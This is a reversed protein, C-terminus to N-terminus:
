LIYPTRFPDLDPGFPRREGQNLKTSGKMLAFTADKAFLICYQNKFEEMAGRKAAEKTFDFAMEAPKRKFWENIGMAFWDEMITKGTERGGSSIASFSTDRAFNKLGLKTSEYWAEEVASPIVGKAIDKAVLQGVKKTAEKSAFEAAAKVTKIAADKGGEITGMAIQKALDQGVKKTAEKGASKATEKATQVVAEKASTEMLGKILDEFNFPSLSTAASLMCIAAGTTDGEFYCKAAEALDIGVGSWPSITNLGIKITTKVPTWFVWDIWGM